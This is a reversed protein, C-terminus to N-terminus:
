NCCIITSHSGLIGCLHDQEHGKGGHTKGFENDLDQNYPNNCAQRGAAQEFYATSYRAWVTADEEKGLTVVIM